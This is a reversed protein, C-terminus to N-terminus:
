KIRKEPLPLRGAMVDQISEQVHRYAPTEGDDLTDILWIVRKLIEDQDVLVRYKRMSGEPVSFPMLSVHQKWGSYQNSERDYLTALEAVYVKTM